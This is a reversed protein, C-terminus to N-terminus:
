EQVFRTYRGIRHNGALAIVCRNIHKIHKALKIRDVIAEEKSLVEEIKSMIEKVDTKRKGSGNKEKNKLLFPALIRECEEYNIARKLIPIKNVSSGHSTSLSDDVPGLLGSVGKVPEPALVPVATVQAVAIIASLTFFISTAKM